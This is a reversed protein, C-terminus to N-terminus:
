RQEVVELLEEGLHGVRGHVGDPLLDDGIGGDVGAGAAIQQLLPRFVASDQLNVVGNEGGHIQHLDAVHVPGAEMHLGDGQQVVLPRGQGIGQVPQEDVHVPGVLVACM